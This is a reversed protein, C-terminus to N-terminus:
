LDLEVEQLKKDAARSSHSAMSGMQRPAKLRQIQKLPLYEIAMLLSKSSGANEPLSSQFHAETHGLSRQIIM